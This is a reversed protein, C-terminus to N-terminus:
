DVDVGDVEGEVVDVVAVAVGEHGKLVSGAVPAFSVVFCNKESRGDWLGHHQFM